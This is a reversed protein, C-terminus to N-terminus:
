RVNQCRARVEKLDHSPSRVIRNPIPNYGAAGKGPGVTQLAPKPMRGPRRRVLDTEPEVVKVRVIAGPNLRTQLFRELARGFAPRRFVSKPSAVALVTVNPLPRENHAGRISGRHTQDPRHHIHSLVMM